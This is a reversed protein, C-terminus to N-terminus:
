RIMRRVQEYIFEPSERFQKPIKNKYAHQLTFNEASEMCYSVKFGNVDLTTVFNKLQNFPIIVSISNIYKIPKPEATVFQQILQFLVETKDGSAILM